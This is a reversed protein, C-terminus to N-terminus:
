TVLSRNLSPRLYKTFAQSSWRGLQQIQANSFQRDYALTAGGIRYSHTTYKCTDSQCKEVCSWTFYSPFLILNSFCRFRYFPGKIQTHQHNSCIKILKWSAPCLSKSCSLLVKEVNGQSHKFHDLTTIARHRSNQQTQM